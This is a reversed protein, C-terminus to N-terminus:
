VTVVALSHGCSSLSQPQVTVAGPSHSCRSLSWLQVTVAARCHSCRSQSQMHVIVVGPCHCCRSQSQVQATVVAPCHSCRSQSWVQVTVWPLPCAQARSGQKGRHGGGPNDGRLAGKGLEILALKSDVCLLLAHGERHGTRLGTVSVCSVRNRSKAPGSPFSRARHGGARSRDVRLLGPARSEVCPPDRSVHVESLRPGQQACSHLQFSRHLFALPEQRQLFPPAEVSPCCLQRSGWLLERIVLLIWM